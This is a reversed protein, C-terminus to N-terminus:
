LTVQQAHWTCESQKVRSLTEAGVCCSATRAVTADMAVVAAAVCVVFVYLSIVM